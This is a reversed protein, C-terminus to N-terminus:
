SIKLEGSNKTIPNKSNSTEVPSIIVTITLVTELVKALKDMALETLWEFGHILRSVKINNCNTRYGDTGYPFTFNYKVETRPKAYEDTTYCM